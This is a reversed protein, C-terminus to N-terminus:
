QIDMVKSFRQPQWFFSLMKLVGQWCLYFKKLSFKIQNLCIIQPKIQLGTLLKSLIILVLINIAIEWISQWPIDKLIKSVEETMLIEDM